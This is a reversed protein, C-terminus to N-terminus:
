KNEQAKKMLLLSRTKYRPDKNKKYAAIVEELSGDQLLKEEKLREKLTNYENYTLHDRTENKSLYTNLENYSASELYYSYPKIAEKPKKIITVVKVEKPVEEEKVKEEEIVKKSDDKTMQVVAGASNLQLKEAIIQLQELQKQTKARKHYYEYYSSIFEKPLKTKIHEIDKANYSKIAKEYMGQLRSYDEVEVLLTKIGKYRRQAVNSTYGVKVPSTLRYGKRKLRKLVTHYKTKHSVNFIIEKKDPYTLSYLLFQNKRHLLIALDKKKAHYLYLYKTGNRMPILNTRAFYARHYKVYPDHKVVYVKDVEDTLFANSLSCGNLVFFFLLLLIKQM